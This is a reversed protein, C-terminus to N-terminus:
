VPNLLALLVTLPGDICDRKGFHKEYINARGIYVLIILISINSPFLM